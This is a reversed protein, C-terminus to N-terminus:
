YTPPLDSPTLSRVTPPFTNEYKGHLDLALLKFGELPMGISHHLHLAMAQNVRLNKRYRIDAQIPRTAASKTDSNNLELGGCMCQLDNERVYYAEDAEDLDLGFEQQMLARQWTTAESAIEGFYRIADLVRRRLADSPQGTSRLLAEQGIALDVAILLGELNGVAYAGRLPVLIQELQASPTAMDQVFCISRVHDVIAQGFIQHSGRMRLNIIGSMAVLLDKEDLKALQEVESNVMTM